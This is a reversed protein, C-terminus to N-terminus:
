AGTNLYRFEILFDICANLSISCVISYPEYQWRFKDLNAGKQFRTNFDINPLLTLESDVAFYYACLQYNISRKKKTLYQKSM